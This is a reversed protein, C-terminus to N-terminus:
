DPALAVPYLAFYGSVDSGWALCTVSSAVHSGIQGGVHGSDSLGGDPSEFAFEPPCSVGSRFFGFSSTMELSVDGYFPTSGNLTLVWSSGSSGLQLADHPLVQDDVVTPGLGDVRRIVLRTGSEPGTHYAVVTHISDQSWVDAAFVLPAATLVGVGPVQTASAGMPLLLACLAVVTLFMPRRRAPSPPSM